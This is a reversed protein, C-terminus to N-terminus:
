QGVQVYLDTLKGLPTGVLISCYIIAVSATLHLMILRLLPPSKIVAYSTYIHINSMYIRQANVGTDPAMKEEPCFVPAIDKSKMECAVCTAIEKWDM